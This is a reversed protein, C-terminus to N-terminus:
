RRRAPHTAGGFRHLAHEDHLGHRSGLNPGTLGYKISVHGSIMNIITGPVFFPSIKRPGGELWKSYNDEITSIGGIGSGMAVGYRHADAENIALGSDQMAQISAAIGYHM